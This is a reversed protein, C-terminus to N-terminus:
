VTGRGKVENIVMMLALGQSVIKVMGELVEMSLSLDEADVKLMAEQFGEDDNEQMMTKANQIFAIAEDLRQVNDKETPM